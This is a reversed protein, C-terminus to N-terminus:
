FGQALLECLDLEVGEGDEDSYPVGDSDGYADELQQAIEEDLQAENSNETYDRGM